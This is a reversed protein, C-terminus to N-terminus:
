FHIIVGHNLTAAKEEQGGPAMKERRNLWLEKERGRGGNERWEREGKGCRYESM